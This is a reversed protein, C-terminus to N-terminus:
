RKIAIIQQLMWVCLVTGLYLMCCIIFVIDGFHCTPNQVDRRSGLDQDIQYTFNAAFLKQKEQGSVNLTASFEDWKQAQDVPAIAVPVCTECPM